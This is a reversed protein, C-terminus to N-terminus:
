SNVEELMRRHLDPDAIVVSRIAAARPKGSAIASQIRSEWEAKASKRSASAGKAVPKVGLKAKAKGKALKEEEDMAVPDEEDEMAEAEKESQALLTEEEMAKYKAKLEENEARLAVLEEEMSARMETDIEARTLNRELCRLVFEAKAKPYAAKIEALSAAVPTATSMSKEQTSERDDGADPGDCRLSLLVGQPMNKLRAVARMEVAKAPAISNVYGQALAEKANVWTESAMVALIEDESKGTKQTYASVMSQKLKALLESAKAHETDDGGCEMHPNHIMLYGNEAIEVEDFAMAIHSAISFAASEILAKKPGPYAKFADYLAFGDIVDGGESHIRVLLPQTQDMADLQEKVASARVDDGIVGFLKIQNLM